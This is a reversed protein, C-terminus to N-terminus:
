TKVVGSAPGIFVALPVGGSRHLIETHWYVFVNFYNLEKPGGIYSYSPHSQSMASAAAYHSFRLRQCPKRMAQAPLLFSARNFTDQSWRREGQQGSM